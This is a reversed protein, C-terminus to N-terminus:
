CIAEWWCLSLVGIKPGFTGTESLSCDEPLSMSNIFTIMENFRFVTVRRFPLHTESSTLGFERSKTSSRTMKWWLIITLKRDLKSSFVLGSL